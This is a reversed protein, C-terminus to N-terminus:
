ASRVSQRVAGAAAPGSACGLRAPLWGVLTAARRPIQYGCVIGRASDLVGARTRRTQRTWGVAGLGWARGGRAASRTPVHATATARRAWLGAPGRTSLRWCSAARMHLWCASMPHREPPAPPTPPTAASERTAPLPTPLVPCPRHPGEFAGAHRRPPTRRFSSVVREAGSENRSPPPANTAAQMFSANRRASCRWVAQPERTAAGASRIKMLPPYSPLPTNSAPWTPHKPAECGRGWDGVM